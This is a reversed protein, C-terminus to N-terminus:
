IIANELDGGKILGLKMMPMIEHLFCFTRCPAIETAFDNIDALQHYQQGLIKTKYDVYVTVSFTDAPIALLEVNNNKDEYRVVERLNLTEQEAELERIGCKLIAETFPQASGNLIPVEDGDILVLVNYINFAAFSAMLHEITQVTVGNYNKISTGRNTNAVNSALAEIIPQNELDTRQFKIGHNAETPCCTISVNRGSHLGKGSLSFKSLLTRQKM